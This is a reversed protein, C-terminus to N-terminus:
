LIKDLITFSFRKEKYSLRSGKSNVNETAKLTKLSEKVRSFPRRYENEAWLIGCDHAFYKLCVLLKWTFYPVVFNQGTTSGYIICFLAPFCYKGHLYFIFVNPYTVKLKKFYHPCLKSILVSQFFLMVRWRDFSTFM